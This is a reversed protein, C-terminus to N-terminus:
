VCLTVACLGATQAALIIECTVVLKRMFLLLLCFSVAPDGDDDVCRGQSVPNHCLDLAHFTERLRHLGKVNFVSKRDLATQQLTKTFAARTLRRQEPQVREDGTGPNEDARNGAVNLGEPRKQSDSELNLVRSLKIPSGATELQISNRIADKRNQVIPLCDHFRNAFWAIGVESYCLM